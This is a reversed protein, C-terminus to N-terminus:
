FQKPFVPAFPRARYGFAAHAPGADLVMDTDMLGIVREITGEPLGSSKILSPLV